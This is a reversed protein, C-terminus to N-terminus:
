DIADVRVDNRGLDVRISKRSLLKLLRKEPAAIGSRWQAGLVDAYEAVAGVYSAEPDVKLTFFLTQSPRVIRQEHAQLADGLVTAADRTLADFGAAGFAASDKLVFVHVVLPSARGDLDPNADAAAVLQVDIPQSKPESPALLSTSGCACLLANTFAVICLRKGHQTWDSM